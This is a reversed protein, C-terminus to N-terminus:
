SKVETEKSTKSPRSPLTLAMVKKCAEEGWEWQNQFRAMVRLYHTSGLHYTIWPQVLRRGSAACLRPPKGGKETIVDEVKVTQKKVADVLEFAM